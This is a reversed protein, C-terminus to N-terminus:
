MRRWTTRDAWDTLAIGERSLQDRIDDAAKFDKKKRAENRKLVESDVRRSLDTEPFELEQRPFLGLIRHGWKRLQAGVALRFEADKSKWAEDVMRHMVALVQPTNFDDDMAARLGNEFKEAKDTLASEVVGIQKLEEFFFYFRERIAMAQAMKEENFDLPATYHTSLFLVKLEQIAEVRRVNFGPLDKLTVFNRLSKAMKHGGTTILGHHVWFKAFTKGTACESQAIENEHHPFILDLGGGHIDFSEGLYKMSMASCEIHWGPRGDGWPSPWSPEGEKAKKWLVFDLSNKKKENPDIRVGELMADKKQHSLRGYGAFCNVDFYVDGDSPYACEKGILTQILGIMDEIHESAKPDLIKRKEEPLERDPREIGLEQLAGLYDQYYKQSVKKTGANLDATDSQRAKEIIKDDVDTVNRVFKVRYGSYEFYRRMVEFVYASRLHGIHPEDYVTPGCVYMKVVGAEIPTFAEKKKSLSNYIKLPM